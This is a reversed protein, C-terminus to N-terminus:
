RSTVSLEAHPKWPADATDPLMTKPAGLFLREAGVKRSALYDKVAVGRQQALTRIADETVSISALLLSEMETAPLDKALGVLNRPKVIDARRYVDNLLVPVEADPLVGVM